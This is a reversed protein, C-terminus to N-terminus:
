EFFHFIWHYLYFFLAKQLYPKQSLWQGLIVLLAISSPRCNGDKDRYRASFVVAEAGDARRALIRGAVNSGHGGHARPFTHVVSRMGARTMLDRLVAPSCRSEALVRAADAVM